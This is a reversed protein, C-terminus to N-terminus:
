LWVRQPQGTAVIRRAIAALDEYTVLRALEMRWHAFSQLHALVQAPDNGFVLPDVKLAVKGWLRREGKALEAVTTPVECHLDFSYVTLHHAPEEPLESAAPDLDDLLGM